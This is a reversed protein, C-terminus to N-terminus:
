KNDEKKTIQAIVEPQCIDLTNVFKWKYYKWRSTFVIFIETDNKIIIYKPSIHHIYGKFGDVDVYRGISVFQNSRFTLYGTLNEAISKFMLFLTGGILIKSILIFFTYDFSDILNTISAMNM